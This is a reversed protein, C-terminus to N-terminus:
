AGHHYCAQRRRNEARGREVELKRVRSYIERALKRAKDIDIMGDSGKTTEKIM